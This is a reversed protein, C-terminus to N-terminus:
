DPAQQIYEQGVSWYCRKLFTLWGYFLCNPLKISSKAFVCYVCSSPPGYITANVNLLM